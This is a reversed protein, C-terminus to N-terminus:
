SEEYQRVNIIIKGGTHNQLFGGTSNLLFSQVIIFTRTSIKKAISIGIGIGLGM